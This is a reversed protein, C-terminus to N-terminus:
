ARRTTGVVRPPDGAVIAYAPVEGRVVTGAGVVAGRGIRAGGLIVARQGLWADDEIVVDADVVGRREQPPAPWPGGAIVCENAIFVRDGVLVSANTSFVTGLVSGHRGIRVTADPGLHFQVWGWLGTDAGIEVAPDRESRCHHFAWRTELHCRPGFRVNAPIPDPYWDWAPAPGSTDRGDSM